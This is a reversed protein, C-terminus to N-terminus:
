WLIWVWGLGWVVSRFGAGVWYSAYDMLYFGSSHDTVKPIIQDDTTIRCDIICNCNMQLPNQTLTSLFVYLHSSFYRFVWFCLFRILTYLLLLHLPISPYCRTIFSAAHGFHGFPFNFDPLECGIDIMRMVHVIAQASHFLDRYVTSRYTLIKEHSFSNEHIIQM